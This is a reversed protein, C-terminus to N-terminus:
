KATAHPYMATGVLKWCATLKVTFSWSRAVEVQVKTGHQCLVSPCGRAFPVFNSWVKRTPDVIKRLECVPIGIFPMGHDTSIRCSRDWAGMVECKCAV